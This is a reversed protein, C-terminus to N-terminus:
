APIKVININVRVLYDASAIANLLILLLLQPTPDRHTERKRTDQTSCVAGDPYQLHTWQREEGTVEKTGRSYPSRIFNHSDELVLILLVEEYIQAKKAPKTPPPGGGAPHHHNHGTAPRLCGLPLEGM